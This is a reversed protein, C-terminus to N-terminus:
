VISYKGALNASPLIHSAVALFQYFSYLLGIKKYFDPIKSGEKDGGARVATSGSGHRATIVDALAHHVCVVCPVAYKPANPILIACCYVALCRATFVMAHQRYEEYIVMPKDDIRKPPVRFLISSFALLTHIIMTVWDVYEGTFGLSGTTNYVYGYRYIFSILTSIGLTKHIFDKDEHTSLKNFNADKHLMGSMWWRLSHKKYGTAIVKAKANQSALNGSSAGKRRTVESFSLESDSLNSDSLEFSSLRRRGQPEEESDSM